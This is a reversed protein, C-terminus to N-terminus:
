KELEVEQLYLHGSSTVLKEAAERSLFAGEISVGMGRDEEYVVYIKMKTEKSMYYLFFERLKLSKKLFSKLILPNSGRVCSGLDRMNGNFM